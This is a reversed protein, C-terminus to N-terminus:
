PFIGLLDWRDRWKFMRAPKIATHTSDGGRARAQGHEALYDAHRTAIDNRIWPEPVVYFEPAEPRLDVMVWFRNRREGRPIDSFLRGKTTSTQWMASSRGFSKVQISVRVAHNTDFAVIDFEGAVSPLLSALAGRRHIEAMVFHEGAQGTRYAITKDREPRTM